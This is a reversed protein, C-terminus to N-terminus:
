FKLPLQTGSGFADIRNEFVATFRHSVHGCRAGCELMQSEAMQFHDPQQRLGAAQTGGRPQHIHRRRSQALAQALDLGYDAILQEPARRAADRCSRSPALERAM